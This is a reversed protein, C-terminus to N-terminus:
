VSLATCAASAVAFARGVGVVGAGAVVTGDSRRFAVTVVSDDGADLWEVALAEARVEFAAAVAAAIAMEVTEGGGAVDRTASRGDDLMVAIGIGDSREEVAISRLGGAGTRMPSSRGGETALHPSAPVDAPPSPAEVEVGADPEAHEDDPVLAPAGPVVRSRLGHSALVRQVDEEVREPDADPILRVRVGSPATSEGVDIEASAVGPVAMLEVRLADTTVAGAGENREVSEAVSRLLRSWKRDIDLVIGM